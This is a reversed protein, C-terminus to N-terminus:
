SCDIPECKLPVMTQSAPPRQSPEYGPPLGPVLELDTLAHTSAIMRRQDDYSWESFIPVTTGPPDTTLLQLGHRAYALRGAISMDYAAKHANEWKKLVAFIPKESSVKRKKPQKPKAISTNPADTTAGTVEATDTADATDDSSRKMQMALVRLQLYKLYENLLRKAVPHETQAIKKNVEKIGCKCGQPTDANLHYFEACKGNADLFILISRHGLKKAHDMGTDLPKMGKDIAKEYTTANAGANVSKTNEDLEYGVKDVLKEITLEYSEAIYQIM